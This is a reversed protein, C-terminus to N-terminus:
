LWLSHPLFGRWQFAEHCVHGMGRALYSFRQTYFAYPGVFERLTYPIAYVIFATLAIFWYLNVGGYLFAM